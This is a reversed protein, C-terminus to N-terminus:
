ADFIAALDLVLDADAGPLDRAAITLTPYATATVADARHITAARAFPDLVVSVIVGAAVWERARTATAPATDSPSMLEFVLEPAISLFRERQQDPVSRYRDGSLWGADPAGNLGISIGTSSEIVAGHGHRDNWANLQRYLENNRLGTAFGTPPSVVLEGELSREFRMPAYRHNLYALEEDTPAIRPQVQVTM